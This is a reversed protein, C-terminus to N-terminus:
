EGAGKNTPKYRNPYVREGPDNHKSPKPLRVKINRPNRRDTGPTKGDMPLHEDNKVKMKPAM